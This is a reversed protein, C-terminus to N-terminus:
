PSDLERQEDEDSRRRDALWILSSHATWCANALEYLEDSSLHQEQGLVHTVGTLRALASDRAGLAFPDHYHDM